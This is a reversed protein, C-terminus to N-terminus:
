QVVRLSQIIKVAEADTLWGFSHIQYVNTRGFAFWYKEGRADFSLVPIANITRERINEVEDAGPAGPALNQRVSQITTRVVEGDITRTLGEIRISSDHGIEDGITEVIPGFLLGGSAMKAPPVVCEENQWKTGFPLRMSVSATPEVYVLYSDIPSPAITLCAENFYNTGQPQMGVEMKEELEEVQRELDQQVALFLALTEEDTRVEIPRFASSFCAAAFVITAIVFTWFLIWLHLPISTLQWSTDKKVTKKTTKTKRPPM